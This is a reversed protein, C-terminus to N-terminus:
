IMGTNLTIACNSRGMALEVHPVFSFCVAFYIISRRLLSSPAVSPYGDLVGIPLKDIKERKDLNSCATQTSRSATNIQGM